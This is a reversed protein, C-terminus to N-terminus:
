RLARLHGALVQAARQQASVDKWSWTHWTRDLLYVSTWNGGHRPMPASLYLRTAYGDRAHLALLADLEAPQCGPPLQLHELLLFPQEGQQIERVSSCLPKIEDIQDQPIVVVSWRACPQYLVRM